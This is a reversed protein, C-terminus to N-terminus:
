TDLDKKECIKDKLVCVNALIGKINNETELFIDM